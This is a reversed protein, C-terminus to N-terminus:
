QRKWRRSVPQQMDVLEGSDGTKGRDLDAEGRPEEVSSRSATDRRGDGNKGTDAESLKQPYNIPLLLLDISYAKM